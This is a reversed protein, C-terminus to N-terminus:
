LVLDHNTLADIMELETPARGMIGKWGCTDTMSKLYPEFYTQTRELDGSPNLIYYVKRTDVTSKGDFPIKAGDPDIGSPSLLSVLDLQDLLFPLSPIRSVARGRLIPISEWPFGSVNKDLALFLHEDPSPNVEGRLIELDSM